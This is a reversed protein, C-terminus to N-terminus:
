GSAAPVAAALQDYVDPNDEVSLVLDPREPTRFLWEEDAHRVLKYGNARVFALREGLLDQDYEVTRDWILRGIDLMPIYFEGYATEDARGSALSRAPYSRVGAEDLVTHFVRRTEVQADVTRDEQDPFSVVLPVSVVEDFVSHQHGILDFEGLHEGHDAVLVVLSDALDGRSELLALLRSLRDDMTRLDADYLQRLKRRQRPDLERDSFVHARETAAVPVNRLDDDVFREFHDPSPSRPLHADMLNVYLFYPDSARELVSAVRDVTGDDEPGETGTVTSEDGTNLANFTREVPRRLWPTSTITNVGPGFLDVLSQPVTIESLTHFEDFGRGFGTAPRVFENPSVAYTEYGAEGLLQALTPQDGLVPRTTTAGHDSPYAGTLISAQAPISWPAQAVPDTFRTAEAAFADLAPTTEREYGYCSVRDRRVTDLTVVIVNPRSPM